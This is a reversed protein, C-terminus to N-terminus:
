NTRRFGNQAPDFAGTSYFMKFTDGVKGYDGCMYGIHGNDGKYITRTNTGTCGWSSDKDETVLKTITVDVETTEGCGSLAAALAAIVLIRKM